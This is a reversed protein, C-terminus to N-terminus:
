LKIIYSQNFKLHEPEKFLQFSKYNPVFHTDSSKEMLYTEM